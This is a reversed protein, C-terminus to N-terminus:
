GSVYSAERAFTPVLDFCHVYVYSSILCNSLMVMLLVIDIPEGRDDLEERAM